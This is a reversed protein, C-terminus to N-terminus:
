SLGTPDNQTFIATRDHGGTDCELGVTFYGRAGMDQKTINWEKRTREHRVGTMAHEGTLLTTM